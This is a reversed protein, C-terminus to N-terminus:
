CGYRRILPVTRTAYDVIRTGLQGVTWVASLSGARTPVAAVDYLEWGRPLGSASWRGNVRRWVGFNFEGGHEEYSWSDSSVAYVDGGPPSAIGDFETEGSGSVSAGTWRKGDWHLMLPGIAPPSLEEMHEGGGAWVDAGSSAGVSLLWADDSGRTPGRTFRRWHRGDWHLMLAKGLDTGPTTGVVWVDRHSLVVLDALDVDGKRYLREWRRGNWHWVEGGGVLWVDRPSLAAVADTAAVDAPLEVSGWGRGNWHLVLPRETRPVFGVAWADRSSTAAVDTLVGSTRPSPVVSWRSGNWREVLPTGSITEGGTDGGLRVVGGVAWAYTPSIAAVANLTGQKVIPSQVTRWTPTCGRPAADSLGGTAAALVAVAFAAAVSAPLSLRRRM